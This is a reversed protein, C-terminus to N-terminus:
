KRSLVIPCEVGREFKMCGFTFSFRDATYVSYVICDVFDFWIFFLFPRSIEYKVTFTSSVERRDNNASHLSSRSGVSVCRCRLLRHCYRFISCGRPDHVPGECTWNSSPAEECDPGQRALELYEASFLTHIERYSLDCKVWAIKVILRESGTGFSWLIVAFLM